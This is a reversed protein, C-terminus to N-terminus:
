LNARIDLPEQYKVSGSLFAVNFGLGHNSHVGTAHTERIPDRLYGQKEPEKVSDLPLSRNGESYKPILGQMSHVHVYSLVGPIGELDSPSYPQHDSPCINIYNHPGYTGTIVAFANGPNESRQVVISKKLSEQKVDFTYFPPMRDENDSAYIFSATMVQKLNGICSRGSWRNRDLIEYKAFFYAVVVFTAIFLAAYKAFSKM